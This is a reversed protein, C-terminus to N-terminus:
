YIDFIKFLFEIIYSLVPSLIKSVFGLFILALLIINGYTYVMGYWATKRLDFLNTVVGFGDLPPIPILNFIMLVLNMQIAYFIMTQIATFISNSYLAINNSSFVILLKLIITFLVAFIFNTIVGSLDVILEDKRQKKFNYSNVEVPKGWGFGGLFLCILGIPDIHALPNLTVRGQIKPTNDGLKYASYAHAFEHVTIGIIIGPALYLINLFFSLPDSFGGRMFNQAVFIVVIIWIFNKQFFVPM